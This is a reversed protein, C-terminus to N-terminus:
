WRRDRTSTSRSIVKMRRLCDDLESAASLRQYRDAHRRSAQMDERLGPDLGALALRSAQGWGHVRRSWEEIRMGKIKNGKDDVLRDGLLKGSDKLLCSNIETALHDFRISEAVAFVLLSVATFSAVDKSMSQVASDLSADSLVAAGLEFSYNQFGAHRGNVPVMYFTGPDVKFRTEAKADSTVVCLEIEPGARGYRYFTNDYRILNTDVSHEDRIEAIQSAWQGGVQLKHSHM